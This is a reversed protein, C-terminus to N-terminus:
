VQLAPTEDGLPRRAKDVMRQCIAPPFAKRLIEESCTGRYQGRHLLVPVAGAPLEPTLPAPSLGPCKQACKRAARTSYDM